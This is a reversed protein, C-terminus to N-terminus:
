EAKINALKVVNAWKETEAAIFKGFDSPSSAFVTYGVDAIRAKVTLDAVAANIEQSLKEIIEAPTDRPAGIGGWFTAEYGPV